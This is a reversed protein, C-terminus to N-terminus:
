DHLEPPRRFVLVANLGGFAFSNSIAYELHTSRAINPVFDLDCYPDPETFNCTPPAIGERLALVTAVAELAAAAGLTHGHMSKTSSVLLSQSHSGFVEELTAVEVADNVKTGTGHANVYHIENPSLGADRLARRIAKAQGEMTPRVMHHGDSSMGFGCLEGLIQAGPAQAHDWDELVLM